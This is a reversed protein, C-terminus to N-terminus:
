HKLAFAVLPLLSFLMLIQWSFVEFGLGFSQTVFTMIEGFIGRTATQYSLGGDIILIAMLLFYSLIPHQAITQALAFASTVIGGIVGAIPVLIAPLAM